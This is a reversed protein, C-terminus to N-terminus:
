KALKQSIKLAQKFQAEQRSINHTRAITSIAKKRSPSQVTNMLETVNKRITGPGKLLPSM